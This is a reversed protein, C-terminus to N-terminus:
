KIVYLEYGLSPMLSYSIYFFGKDQQFIGWSNQVKFVQRNDDYGIIAVAHNGVFNRDKQTYTFPYRSTQYYFMQDLQLGLIVPYGNNIFSKINNVNNSVTGWSAIKGVQAQQIQTNNPRLTCGNTPSYPMQAWSCVGYNKLFNLANSINTGAECDGPLKSNNYLFEPSRNAANSNYAWGYKKRLLQSVGVYGAAFAVCSGEQQGQNEVAPTALTYTASRLTLNSEINPYDNLDAKPYTDFTAKDVLVLGNLNFSDSFSKVAKSLEESSITQTDISVLSSEEQCANLAFLSASIITFLFVKKM